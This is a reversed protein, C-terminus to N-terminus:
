VIGGALIGLPGDEEAVPVLVLVLVVGDLGDFVVQEHLSQRTQNNLQNRSLANMCTCKSTPVNMQLEYSCYSVYASCTRVGYCKLPGRILFQGVPPKKNM